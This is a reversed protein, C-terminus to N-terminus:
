HRTGSPAPALPLKKVEVHASGGIVEFRFVYDMSFPVAEAAVRHTSGDPDTVWDTILLPNYRWQRVAAVVASFFSMSVADDLNCADDRRVETVEGTASVIVKVRVDRAPLGRDILEPPYIPSAHDVPKVQTAAQEPKLTYRAQGMDVVPKWDVDGTNQLKKASPSACSCLALVLVTCATGRRWRGNLGNM